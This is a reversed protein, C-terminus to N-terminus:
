NLESVFVRRAAMLDRAACLDRWLRADQKRQEETQMDRLVNLRRMIVVMRWTQGACADLMEELLGIRRSLTLERRRTTLPYRKM